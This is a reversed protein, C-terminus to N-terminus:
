QFLEIMLGEYNGYEMELLGEFYKNAIDPSDHNELLFITNYIKQIKEITKQSSPTAKIQCAINLKNTTNPSILSNLWITKGNNDIQKLIAISETNSQLNTKIYNLITKPMEPHFISALPKNQIEASQTQHATCFDTNCFKINGKSTIRSNLLLHTPLTATKNNLTAPKYNTLFSFLDLPKESERKLVKKNKIQTNTKITSIM